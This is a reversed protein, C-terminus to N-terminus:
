GLGRGARKGFQNWAAPPAAKVSVPVSQVPHVFVLEAAHLAITGPTGARGGYKVDGVIPLGRSALQVRIQHSRGTRPRIELQTLRGRRERISYKLTARRSDEAPTRAARVVNDRRDKTLFDTWEGAPPDPAGAIWAHYIKRISNDRFQQSLRAAAKSTRAFLVVGSVPRDLRHVVGLFVKGPKRYKEKLFRRVVDVLSEDGTRDGMTLMGAPKNVALCHNDEFLIELPPAPAERRSQEHAAATAAPRRARRGLSDSLRRPKKM